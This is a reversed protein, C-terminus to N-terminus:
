PLVLTREFRVVGRRLVQKSQRLKSLLDEAVKLEETSVKPLEGHEAYYAPLDELFATRKSFTIRELVVALLEAAKPASSQAVTADHGIQLTGAFNQVIEGQGVVGQIVGAVKCADGAELLDRVGDRGTEKGALWNLSHWLYSARRALEAESPAPM